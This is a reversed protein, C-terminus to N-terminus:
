ISNTFIRLIMANKTAVYKEKFHHILNKGLIHAWELHILVINFHKSITKINSSHKVLAKVKQMFITSHTFDLTM